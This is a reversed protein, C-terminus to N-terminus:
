KMLCSRHLPYSCPREAKQFKTKPFDTNQKTKIGMAKFQHKKKKQNLKGILNDMNIIVKVKTKPDM